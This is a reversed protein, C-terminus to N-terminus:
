FTKPQFRNVVGKLIKILIIKQELEIQTKAFTNKEKYIGTKDTLEPSRSHVSLNPMPHTQILIFFNKRQAPM